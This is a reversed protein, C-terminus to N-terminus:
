AENEDEERETQSSEPPSFVAPGQEMQEKFQEQDRLQLDYIQRYLGKEQILSAHAGREIIKGDELVLILDARRVSSLRQAIIFTTRGEMLTALAQQILYETQTDVSSTSDDLILIRPNMLLARGIAIRQRQGGSLTIGREGVVTDYGNPLELIFDHAQAAKAAAMVEEMSAEPRGFALNERISASFLLSTQLVIGIQRRLALLDLQRVDKGDVKIVGSCVDYFRPILNVLSTKGSGTLGLLAIVQNPKVSLNIDQLVESRGNQYHFTVQEFDVQGQLRPLPIPNLPSQIELDTELIELTRQVGASAEGAANVLWSLQQAPNALLLIYSNFAVLIGISLEGRLVMQGGFWLILLTSCIVLFNTTPMLRSRANVVTRQAKYLTKNVTDFREMEFNERAFARVVQVGVVNEQLRSSLDGLLNDVTLFLKGIKKGFNFTLLFLPIMPILSIAALTPQTVFLTIIIGTLLISTRALEVLGQGCFTQISRVDEIVRSILQGSQVHDHFGFPLRQIHDYLANRLDFAIRNANAEVLYRQNFNLVMKLFGLGAIGLAYYLITQVQGDKLGNDIVLRIIAPFALDIATIILLGLASLAIKWRYPHIFRGLKLLSRM